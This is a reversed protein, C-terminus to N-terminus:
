RLITAGVMLFSSSELTFTSPVWLVLNCRISDYMDLEQPSSNANIWCPTSRTSIKKRLFM